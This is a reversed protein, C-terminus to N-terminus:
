ISEWLMSSGSIDPNTPKVFAIQKEELHVQAVPHGISHLVFCCASRTGPGKEQLKCSKASEGPVRLKLHTERWTWEPPFKIKRGRTVCM